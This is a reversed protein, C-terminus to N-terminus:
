AMELTEGGMREQGLDLRLFAVPEEILEGIIARCVLFELLMLNPLFAKM